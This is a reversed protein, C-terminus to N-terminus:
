TYEQFPTFAILEGMDFYFCGGAIIIKDGQTHEFVDAVHYPKRKNAIKVLWKGAPLDKWNKCPKWCMVLTDVPCVLANSNKTELEM